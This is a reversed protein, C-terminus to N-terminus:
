WQTLTHNNPAVFTSTTPEAKRGLICTVTNCHPCHPLLTRAPPAQLAGPNSPAQSTTKMVRPETEFSGRSLQLLFFASDNETKRKLPCNGRLRAALSANARVIPQKLFNLILCHDQHSPGPALRLRSQVELCPRPRPTSPLSLLCHSVQSACWGLSLPPKRLDSLGKRLAPGPLAALQLRWDAEWGRNQEEEM